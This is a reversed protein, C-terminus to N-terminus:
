SLKIKIAPAVGCGTSNVSGSNEIEGNANISLTIEEKSYFPSRLWWYGFIKGEVERTAGGQSLAYDTIGLQRDKDSYFGHKTNMSDSYSLLFVKDNTNECVYPNSETGTSGQENLVFATSILASHDKGFALNYFEGNLWSRLTSHAYNNPYIYSSNEDIRRQSDHTYFERSDLILNSLLFLEGDLERLIRWKIPEFKFWYISNVAYGNEDQFCQTEISSRDTSFPRYKTYYVARYKEGELEVDNYWAFSQKQSLIYYGYGIWEGFNQATPLEGVIANLRALVGEDTVVSQPYSGFYIFNGERLYLLEGCRSCAGNLYDHGLPEGEEVACNKCHKALVCTAEQWSHIHTFTQEYSSQNQNGGSQLDNGSSPSDEELGFIGLYILGVLVLAIAIFIFSRKM